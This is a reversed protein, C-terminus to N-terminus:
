NVVKIYIDGNVGQSVSPASAGSYITQFTLTGTVSAIRDPDNSDGVMVTVGNAINAASLGSVTVAKITQTGTLYRGSAITQDTTSTNYTTAGQTTLQQTNSGSVTITGATGSSVYGASVTPTVSKTASATATILGSSSVSISPNATVTTAPTTASGSAVSKTAAEEYYGAPATVTAGSATLDSSDNRDVGSGVYTSSIAGVTVAGTTYVGSAVATQSSETPTVTKAAQRTVGTGVYTSSVSGVSVSVSSLGDYGNDATVTANQATESPTYNVSKSQLTSGSSTGITRGTSTYFIKGTPVDSAVTNADDTFYGLDSYEETVGNADFAYSKVRVFSADGAQDIYSVSYHFANSSFGDNSVGYYEDHISYVIPIENRITALTSYNVTPVWLGQANQGLIVEYANEQGGGSSATGTIPNGDAGHATNPSILNNAAVTDQTLDIQTVGNLIIKSIAM